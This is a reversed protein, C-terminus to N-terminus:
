KKISLYSKEPAELSARPYWYNYCIVGWLDRSLEPLFHKQGDEVKGPVVKQGEDQGEDIKEGRGM